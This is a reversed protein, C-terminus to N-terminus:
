VVDRDLARLVHAAHATSPIGGARTTVVHWETPFHKICTTNAAARVRRACPAIAYGVAALHVILAM